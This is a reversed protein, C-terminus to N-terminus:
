RTKVAVGRDFDRIEKPALALTGIRLLKDDQDVVFCEDGCRLDPDVASVFKAFVSKGENVCSIVQPDDELVVRLKPKPFAALLRWALAEKPIIFHDHARVTAAIKKGEYVTRIRGTKKSRKIRVTDPLTSSAGEGFQYDLIAKTKALDRVKPVGARPDEGAFVSQGLPYVDLVELPVAGFCPLKVTNNSKVRKTRARVNLVESRLSSEPGTEFFASKKTVPDLEALFRRHKMLQKLGAYLAPHSRCRVAIHEWLSGELIRQKVEELEALSVYLNHRALEQTREEEPLTKLEAGHKSCVPCTCSIYELEDVRETGYATMYRGEQAYLVYSASDFLDCGLAVALGFVMPHGLGFAHVPRNLPVTKKVTAIIDVLETFRYASLLPVIGGVAILSFDKGLARACKRRLDLFRGGQVGANVAFSAERAERARALTTALQEQARGKFADPLTPIDLFSGIDSGIDQQFSIISANTTQVAGYVMLQYSGSDTAVLADGAGLVRHVGGDLAKERLTDNKLFIYANTMLAKAKFSGTLESVPIVPNNPNVVPMLAPTELSKGNATLKGIRGAIDKGKLEFTLKGQM